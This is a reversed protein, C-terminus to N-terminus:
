PGGLIVGANPGSVLRAVVVLRERSSFVPNCTTLTLWAGDWQGTVWTDRPSVVFVDVVQYGHTGVGSEVRIEDGVALRDLHLFPAGYTTRHGSIVTNGPQGPLATDPMHGAGSRLSTRDVGEVFAWDVGAAPAIIRGLVEGPAPVPETVLTASHGLIPPPAALDAPVPIPAAPRAVVEYPVTVAASTRASVGARLDAQARQAFFSTVGFQYAVFGGLVLGLALMVKGVALLVATASPGGRLRIAPLEARIATM